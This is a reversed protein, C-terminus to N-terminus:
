SVHGSGHSGRDHRRRIAPALHILLAFAALILVAAALTAAARQHYAAPAYAGPHAITGNHGNHLVTVALEQSTSAASM